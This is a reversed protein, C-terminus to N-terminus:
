LNVYYFKLCITLIKIQALKNMGRPRPLENEM